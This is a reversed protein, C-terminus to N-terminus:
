VNKKKKAIMKEHQENKVSSSKIKKNLEDIKKRKEDMLNNIAAIEENIRNKQSVKMEGSKDSAVTIIHQKEAVATLNNEVENFSTIFENLAADRENVIVNLSDRQQKAEALEKQNCASLLLAATAM